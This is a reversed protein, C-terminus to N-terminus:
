KEDKGERLRELWNIDKTTLGSYHRQLIIIALLRNLTRLENKM